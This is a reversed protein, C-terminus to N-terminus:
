ITRGAPKALAPSFGEFIPAAGFNRATELEAPDRLTWTVLDLDRVKDAVFPLSSVHPAVYDVGIQRAMGICATLGDENAEKTGLILLGVQRNTVLKRLQAVTAPDFSMVTCPTNLNAIASAVREAIDTDTRDVKLEILVPQGAMATICDSLTPIASGDPLRRERLEAYTLADIRIDEGCMRELTTDHFVVLEGDKTLRVDLECGVGAAAAARFAALSNEPVKGGWLGRHAYAHQALDFGM